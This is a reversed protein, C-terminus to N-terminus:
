QCNKNCESRDRCGCEGDGDACCVDEGNCLAVSCFESCNCVKGGGAGEKDDPSDATKGGCAAIVLAACLCWKLM